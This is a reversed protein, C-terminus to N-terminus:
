LCYDETTQWLKWGRRCPHTWNRACSLHLRVAGVYKIWFVLEAPQTNKLSKM